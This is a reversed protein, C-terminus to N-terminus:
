LPRHLLADRVAGGCSSSSSVKCVEPVHLQDGSLDYLSMREAGCYACPTHRPAPKGIAPLDPTCRECSPDRTVPYYQSSSAAAPTPAILNAM